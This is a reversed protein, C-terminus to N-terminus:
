CSVNLKSEFALHLVLEYFIRAIFNLNWSNFELFAVKIEVRFDIEDVNLLCSKRWYKPVLFNCLQLTVLSFSSLKSEYTYHQHFQCRPFHFTFFLIIKIRKDFKKPKSVFFTNKGNKTGKCGLYKAYFYIVDNSL